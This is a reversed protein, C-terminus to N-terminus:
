ITVGYAYKPETAINDDAHAHHTSGIGITGHFENTAPATTTDCPYQALTATPPREHRHWQAFKPTTPTSTPDNAYRSTTAM